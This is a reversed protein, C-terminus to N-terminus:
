GFSLEVNRMEGTFWDGGGYKSGIATTINASISGITVNATKITTGDVKLQVASSTKICEITHWNGDTLDPGGKITKGAADGRFRCLAVGKGNLGILEVKYQKTNGRRLLDFDLNGTGPMSRTNVDLTIDVNQSGPNLSASNPVSVWGTGDFDFSSGTPTVGGILTGDNGNGSVDHMTTSASPDNMPWSAAFTAARSATSMLLLIASAVAPAIRFSKRATMQVRRRVLAQLLAVRRYV